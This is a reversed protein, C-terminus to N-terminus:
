QLNARHREVPQPAFARASRSGATIRNDDGPHKERVSLAPMCASTVTLLAAILLLPKLSCIRMRRKM